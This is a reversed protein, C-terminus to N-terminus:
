ACNKTSQFHCAKLMKGSASVTIAVTFRFKENGTTTGDVNKDGIFDLTTPSVMDIYVPTENVNFIHDADLNQALQEM